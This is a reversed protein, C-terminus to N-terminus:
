VNANANTMTRDSDCSSQRLAISSWWRRKQPQKSESATSKVEDDAVDGQEEHEATSSFCSTMNRLWDWDSSEWAAFMCWLILAAVALWLASVLTRTVTSSNAFCMFSFAALFSVMSWILMAYPLSFLIALTELGRTPHTRHFIFRSAGEATMRDRNRNQKLLLLGIIVAGISMLMSLYSSIQAPTRAPLALGGQDVSQISLFAVNANLVVTAYLTFEAAIRILKDTYITHLGVLHFDPAYFLLPSLLTILFTRKRVTGYVSQDVHSARWARRPLQISPWPRFSVNPSRFPATVDSNSYGRITTCAGVLCSSGGFRNNVDKGVNKGFGDILDLMHSLEDVKWSVTSMIPSTVLDGLSHLVIDRLEDVIEHTVKLSRPFLECHYWYQAELEHRIHSASTIGNLELTVPFLESDAEDMWFVCRDKHNIFYYQCGMSGDSYLYEDLVLDVDAALHVGHARLFDHITCMNTNIFTLSVSDFLNADTFVRGEPSGPFIRPHAANLLPVSAVAVDGFIKSSCPSANPSETEPGALHIEVVSSNNSPLYGGMGLNPSPPLAPLNQVSLTAAPPQTSLTTPLHQVSLSHLSYSEQTIPHATIDQSSRSGRAASHLYPYLTSPMSSAAIVDRTEPGCILGRPCPDSGDHDSARPYIIRINQSGGNATADPRKKTARSLASLLFLLGRISTRVLTNDLLLRRLAALLWRIVSM